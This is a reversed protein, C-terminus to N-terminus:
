KSNFDIVPRCLLNLFSNLIARCPLIRDLLLSKTHHLARPEISSTELISLKEIQLCEKAALIE